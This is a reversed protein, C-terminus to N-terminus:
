IIKKAEGNEVRKQYDKMSNNLHNRFQKYIEQNVSKITDTKKESIGFYEKIVLLEDYNYQILKERCLCETYDTQRLILQIKDEIQSANSLSTKDSM